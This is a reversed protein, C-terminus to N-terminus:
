LERLFVASTKRRAYGLREYFRHARERVVNSRVRLGNIGQARTWSEARAVLGEGIGQGRWREDVVLGGIEAHGASELHLPVFVHVWGAVEGAREAVFVAHDPRGGLRGLRDEIEARSAPYGLQDSLRAIAAADGAQPPRFTVAPDQM